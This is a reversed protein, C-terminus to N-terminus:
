GSVKSTVLSDAWDLIPKVREAVKKRAEAFDVWRYDHHEPRGLEPSVPLDVKGEKSEALYYRAIKNYRGYPETERFDYGWRFYLGSLATEEEVERIAAELPEEGEEVLGKPFDWYNFVRLLLYHQVSDLFRVVIIGASLPNDQLIKINTM